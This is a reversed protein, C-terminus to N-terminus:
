SVAEALHPVWGAALAERVDGFLSPVVLERWRGWGVVSRVRETARRGAPDNDFATWVTGYVSLADLWSDRWTGAGGPLACVAWSPQAQQLAWLDSEGEVMVVDAPPGAPWWGPERIGYLGVAFTSGPLASKGASVSRVKVGRVVGDHWHAIYLTSGDGRVRDSWSMEVLTDVTVPPLRLSWRAAHEVSLEPLARFTCTLDPLEVPERRVYDPDADVRQAAQCLRFVASGFSTGTLKMYLEIVDGHVGTSYDYWHDVYLHLSPTREDPNWPSRIKDRVAVVGDVYREPLDICGVRSKIYEVREDWDADGYDFESLNWWWRICRKSGCGPVVICRGTRVTSWRPSWVARGM